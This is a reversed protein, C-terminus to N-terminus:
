YPSSAANLAVSRLLKEISWFTETGATTANPEGFIHAWAKIVPAAEKCNSREQGSISTRAQSALKLLCERQSENAIASPSKMRSGDALISTM